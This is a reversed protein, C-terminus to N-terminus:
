GTGSEALEDRFSSRLRRAASSRGSAAAELRL